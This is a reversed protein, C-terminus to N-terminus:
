ALRGGDITLCTGTIFSAEPTALYLAGNAMDIPSTLRRLPTSDVRKQYNAAIDVDTQPTNLSYSHTGRIFPTDVSGPLICNVRINDHAYSLAASRALNIVAAKSAGYAPGGRAGRTGAISSILIVSGGGAHRMAGVVAKIGLFCGKANVDMIHDWMEETQEDFGVRFNAGASAVLIDLRGFRDLTAKVTAAWQDARRVDLPSFLGKGGVGEIEELVGGALEEQIDGIVIVAGERAFLKATAAGIGSAGGSILAVKGTLKM